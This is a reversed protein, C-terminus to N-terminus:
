QGRLLVFRSVSYGLAAAVFVDSPFHSQLTIRSLGILGAAGYAVWPVWHHTPYRRSLVTAIAFAEISHGSPFSSSALRQRQFFTDSFEGTPAIDSPRARHSVTKMVIELVTGDLAAEGAFLATKQSYSSKRLLGIGYLGGPVAAMLISTNRGSFTENFDEFNATRRFYPADHPDAALLGATIGAIAITPALHRGKAVAVPFLWIDKQDHLFNAPLKRWSVDRQTTPLASQQARASGTFLLCSILALVLDTQRSVRHM